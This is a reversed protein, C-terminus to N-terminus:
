RDYGSWPRVFFIENRKITDVRSYAWMRLIDDKNRVALMEFLPKYYKPNLLFM